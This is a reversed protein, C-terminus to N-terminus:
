LLIHSRFLEVLLLWRQLQGPCVDAGFHDLDAEHWKWSM